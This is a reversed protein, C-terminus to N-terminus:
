SLHDKCRDKMQWRIDAYLQRCAKKGVYGAANKNELLFNAAFEVSQWYRELASVAYKIYIEIEEESLHCWNRLIQLDQTCGIHALGRGRIVEVALGGSTTFARLNVEPEPTNPILSWDRQEIWGSQAGIKVKDAYGKGVGAHIVLHGSEHLAIEYPTIPNYM